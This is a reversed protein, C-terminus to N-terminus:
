NLFFFNKSIRDNTRSLNSKRHFPTFLLLGFNLLIPYTLSESFRGRTPRNLRYTTIDMVLHRDTQRETWAQFGRKRTSQLSRTLSLIELIQMGRSIKPNKGNRHDTLNSFFESTKPDKCSTWLPPPDTATPTLSLHCTVPSVFCAVCSM